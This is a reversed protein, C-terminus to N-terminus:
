AFAMDRVKDLENKDNSPNFNGNISQQTVDIQKKDKLYAEIRKNGSDTVMKQTIKDDGFVRSLDKVLQNVNINKGDESLWREAFIANADLGSEAFTKVMGSILTKEEQSPAYSVTYDVDKDKVQVEFGKFGNIAPEASQLFADKAKTFADLDEQTQKPADAERKIDPLVLESKIKELDPKILQAEIIKDMKIDDVQRKWDNYKEDFETDDDFDGKVPEKPMAFQKNFKYDIQQQTLDKYKLAMGMKIIESATDDNVEASTLRELKDQTDLFQRVEAKKGEKLYNFVKESQEDAFKIEDKPKSKLENYEKIQQRLTEPDEVQFERKLWESPAIVEEDVKEVVAAEQKAPEVVAAPEDSFAAAQLATSQSQDVIQEQEQTQELQDPM